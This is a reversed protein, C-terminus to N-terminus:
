AAAIGTQDRNQDSYKRGAARGIRILLFDHHFSFEGNQQANQKERARERRLNCVSSTQNNLNAVLRIVAMSRPIPRSANMPAPYWSMPTPTVMIAEPDVTM